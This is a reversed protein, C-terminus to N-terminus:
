KKKVYTRALNGKKGIRFGSEEDESFSTSYLKLTDGKFEWGFYELDGKGNKIGVADFDFPTFTEFGNWITTFAPKEAGTFYENTFLNNIFYQNFKEENGIIQKADTKRMRRFLMSGKNTKLLILNRNPQYEFSPDDARETTTFHFPDKLEIKLDGGDMNGRISLSDAQNITLHLDGYFENLWPHLKRQVLTSDFLSTNIWEGYLEKSLVIKSATLEGNAKEISTKKLEEKKEQQVTAQEESKKQSCSFCFITIVILIKKIMNLNSAVTPSHATRLTLSTNSIPQTPTENKILKRRKGL